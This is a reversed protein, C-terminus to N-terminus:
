PADRQLDLIHNLQTRPLAYGETDPYTLVGKTRVTAATEWGAIVVLNNELDVICLIYINGKDKGRVVLQYDNVKKRQTARVEFGSVDGLDTHKEQGTWELGLYIAVAFEACVGIQDYIIRQEDTCYFQDKKGHLAHSDTRQKAEAICTEIQMQTLQVTPM